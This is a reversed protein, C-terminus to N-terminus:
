KQVSRDNHLILGKEWIDFEVVKNLNPHRKEDEQRFKVLRAYRREDTKRLEIIVKSMKEIFKGGVMKMEDQGEVKASVQNTVLVVKDMDRAIRILEAMHEAMLTNVAKHDENVVNRYHNGVTDMIVLKISKSECLKKADLIAKNQEEFAKPQMLFIKEIIADFDKGSYLQRLRDTNFSNETDIYIVKGGQTICSLAALLCTTTKGSAANGYIATIGGPLYEGILEYVPKNFTHM